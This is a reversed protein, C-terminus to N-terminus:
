GWQWSTLLQWYGLSADYSSFFRGKGTIVTIFIEPMAAVQQMMSALKFYLDSNLANLKKERNFTIIAVKGRKELLIEEAM